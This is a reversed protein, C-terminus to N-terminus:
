RSAELPKGCKECNATHPAWWECGACKMWYETPPGFFCDACRRDNPDGGTVTGLKVGKRKCNPCTEGGTVPQFTKASAASGHKEMM